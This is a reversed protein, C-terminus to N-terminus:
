FEFDCEGTLYDVVIWYYYRDISLIASGSARLFM